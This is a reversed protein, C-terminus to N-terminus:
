MLPYIFPGIGTGSLVVLTGLLLLALLCLLVVTTRVSTLVRRARSM